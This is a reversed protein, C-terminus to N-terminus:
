LSLNLDDAFSRVSGIGDALNQLVTGINNQQIYCHWHHVAEFSGATDLMFQWRSQNQHDTLNSESGNALSATAAPALPYTTFLLALV